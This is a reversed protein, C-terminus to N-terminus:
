RSKVTIQHTTVPDLDVVMLLQLKLHFEPIYSMKM